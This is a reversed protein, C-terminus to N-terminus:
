ERGGPFCFDDIFNDAVAIRNWYIERPNGDQNFSAWLSLIVTM